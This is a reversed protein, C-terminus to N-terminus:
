ISSSSAVLLKHVHYVKNPFTLTPSAYTVKMMADPVSWTRFTSNETGHPDPAMPQPCPWPRRPHFTALLPTPCNSATLSARPTDKRSMSSSTLQQGMRQTNRVNVSLLLASKIYHHLPCAARALSVNLEHLVVKVEVRKEQLGDTRRKATNVTEFAFLRYCYKIAGTSIPPAVTGIARFSIM